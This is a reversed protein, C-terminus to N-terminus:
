SLAIHIWIYIVYVYRTPRLPQAAKRIAGEAGLVDSHRVAGVAELCQLFAAENEIAILSARERDLFCRRAESRAREPKCECLSGAGGYLEIGSALFRIAVTLRQPSSIRQDHAEHPPATDDPDRAGTDYICTMNSYFFLRYTM